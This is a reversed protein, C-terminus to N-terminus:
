DEEVAVEVAEETLGLGLNHRDIMRSLDAYLVGGVSSPGECRALVIKALTLDDRRLAETAQLALEHPALDSLGVFDGEAPNPFVNAVCENWEPPYTLDRGVGRRHLYLYNYPNSRDEYPEASARILNRLEVLAQRSHSIESRLRDYRRRLLTRTRGRLESLKVGSEEELSRLRAKSFGAGHLADILEILKELEDDTDHSETWAIRLRKLRKVTHNFENRAKRAERAKNRRRVKAKISKLEANLRDTDPGTWHFNWRVLQEQAERDGELARAQTDRYLKDKAAQKLHKKRRRRLATVTKIFITLFTVLGILGLVIFLFIWWGNM